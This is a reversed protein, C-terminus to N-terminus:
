PQPPPFLHQGIMRVPHATQGDEGDRSQSPEDPLQDRHPSARVIVDPTLTHEGATHPQRAGRLPTGLEGRLNKCQGIGTCRRSHPSITTERRRAGENPTSSGLKSDPHPVPPRGGESGATSAATAGTSPTQARRTHCRQFHTHRSPPSPITPSPSTSNVESGATSQTTAGPPPTKQAWPAAAPTPPM